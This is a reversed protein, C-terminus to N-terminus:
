CPNSCWVSSAAPEFAIYLRKEMPSIIRNVVAWPLQQELGAKLKEFFTRPAQQLGYLSKKLKLCRNDESKPGFFQPYEIYIEEEL